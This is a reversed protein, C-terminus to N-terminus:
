GSADLWRAQRLLERLRRLGAHHLQSIRGRTLGMGLAIQDFPVQQFYHRHLVRHEAQPLQQMLEALQRRLQALETRCYANDPMAPERPSLVADDLMFGMAMGVALDALRELASTEPAPSEALSNLRQRKDERRIALQRHLESDAALGNLIAGEIRLFAFTEFRIGREPEYRDMSELLGVMGHQILDVLHLEGGVRRGYVRQAVRRVLPTYAEVLLARGAPEHRREWRAM